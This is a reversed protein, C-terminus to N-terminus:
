RTSIVFNSCSGLRATPLARCLRQLQGIPAFDLGRAAARSGMPMRNPCAALLHVTFDYAGHSTVPLNRDPPSKEAVVVRLPIRSKKSPIERADDLVASQQLSSNVAANEPMAREQCM